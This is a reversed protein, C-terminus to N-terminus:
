LGTPKHAEKEPSIINRLCLVSFPLLLMGVVGFLKLGAFMTVMTALPHLGIYNGVIKPEAIQRIVTIVIYTVILGIGLYPNGTIFICVLGWPILVTGVGLVPLVDILATVAALLLAYDLRLVTFAAFLETFTIVTIIGYAKLYKGLADFVETRIRRLHTHTRKPFIRYFFAAISERDVTMYYCSVVTIIFTLLFDLVGTFLGTAMALTGKVGPISDTLFRELRETVAQWLREGGGIGLRGLLSLLREKLPLADEESFATLYAILRGLETVARSVALYALAFAAAVTIAVLLFAGVGKPLGIRRKLRHMIPNLMLSLVYAIAFPYLAPLLYRLFIRAGILITAAIIGYYAANVVAQKRKEQESM